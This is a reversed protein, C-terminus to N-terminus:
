VWRSFLFAMGASSGKHTSRLPGAPGSPRHATPFLGPRSRQCERAVPHPGRVGVQGCAQTLLEGFPRIPKQQHFTVLAHLSAHTMHDGAFACTGDESLKVMFHRCCTQARHLCQQPQSAARHVLRETCRSHRLKVM